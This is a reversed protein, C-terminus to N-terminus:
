VGVKDTTMNTLNPPPPLPRAPAEDIVTQWLEWIVPDIHIIPSGCSSDGTVRRVNYTPWNGGGTVVPYSGGGTNFPNWYNQMVPSDPALRLATGVTGYFTTGSGSVDLLRGRVSQPRGPVSVELCEYYRYPGGNGQFLAAGATFYSLTCFYPPNDPLNYTFRDPHVGYPHGARASTRGSFNSRYYSDGGIWDYSDRTGQGIMASMGWGDHWSGPWNYSGRTSCAVTGDNPGGSVGGSQRTAQIPGATGQIGGVCDACIDAGNWCNNDDDQTNPPLNLTCYTGVYFCGSVRSSPARPADWRYLDDGRDYCRIREYNKSHFRLCLRQTGTTANIALRAYWSTRNSSPARDLVGDQSRSLLATGGMPQDWAALNCNMTAQTVRLNYQGAISQFYRLNGFANAQEVELDYLGRYLSPCAQHVAASAGYVNEPCSPQAQVPDIMEHACNWTRNGDSPWLNGTAHPLQTQRGRQPNSDGNLTLQMSRRGQQNTRRWHINTALVEYGDDEPNTDWNNIQTCVQITLNNRMYTAQITYSQSGYTRLTAPDLKFFTFPGTPSSASAPAQFEYSGPPLMGASSNSTITQGLTTRAGTEENIHIITLPVNIPTRSADGNACGGAMLARDPRDIGCAVFTVKAEDTSGGEWDITGGVTIPTTAMAERGATSGADLSVSAEVEYADRLDGDSDTIGAGDDPRDVASVVLAVNYLRGKADRMDNYQVPCQQFSASALNNKRVNSSETIWGARTDCWTQASLDNRLREIAKEAVSHSDAVAKARTETSDASVVAM